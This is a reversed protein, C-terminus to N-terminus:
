GNNNEKLIEVICDGMEDTSLYSNANLDKTMKGRELAIAI